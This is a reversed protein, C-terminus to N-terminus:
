EEYTVSLVVAGNGIFAELNTKLTAGVGSSLALGTYERGTEDTFRSGLALNACPIPVTMISGDSKKIRARWRIGVQAAPSVPPTNSGDTVTAYATEKMTASSVATFSSVVQAWAVDDGVGDVSVQAVDSDFDLFKATGRVAM